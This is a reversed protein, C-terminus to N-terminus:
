LWGSALERWQYPFQAVIAGALSNRGQLTSQPGRLVEVQRIDWTSFGSKQVMRYPLPANDLYVSALGGNGGGDGSVTFADIGRITFSRGPQVSVNATQQLVDDMSLVVQDDMMESSMVAVSDTTDQLSRSVKQGTVLIEEIEPQAYAPTHFASLSLSAAALALPCKIKM